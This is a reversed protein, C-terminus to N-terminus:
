AGAGESPHEFGCDVVARLLEPKLMFDRFGSAHVGVYHGRRPVSAPAPRTARAARPRVARRRAGGVGGRGRRGGGGGGSGVVWKKGGDKAEAAAAGKEQVDEEEYDLLEEEQSYTSTPRIDHHTIPTPPRATARVRSERPRARRTAM